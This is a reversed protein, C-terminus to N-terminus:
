LIGLLLYEFEVRKMQEKTLSKSSIPLNSVLAFNQNTGINMAKNEVVVSYRGARLYVEIQEVNDVSNKHTNTAKAEINDSDLSWPYYIKGDKDVISLDLDTNLFDSIEDGQYIAYKSPDIWSLTIKVKMDNPVILTYSKKDGEDVSDLVIKSDARKISLIANVCKLGDPLGYGYEYDPGERGLDTASNVLLAKALDERLKENTVRLYEEELLALLGTIHPASMSTGNMYAYDDNEDISDVINGFAVIDPKLRGRSVPGVSSFYTINEDKDVAGVTISNKASAFDRIIWYDWDERSNGASNVILMDPNKSVFADVNQSLNGYVTETDPGYSHNSLYINDRKLDNLISLIDFHYQYFSYSYLLSSTAIGIADGNEGSSAIIGGVHSAHPSITLNDENKKKWIVRNKLEFHENNVFGGDVVGVNIGRGTLKYDKYLPDINLMNRGRLDDGQLVKSEGGRVFLLDEAILGFDKQYYGIGEHSCEIAIVDDYSKDSIRIQEYHEKLFCNNKLDEGVSLERKLTISRQEKTKFSMNININPSNDLDGITLNGDELESGSLIYARKSSGIYEKNNYIDVKHDIKTPLYELLNIDKDDSLTADLNMDDNQYVEVVRSVTTSLGGRDKVSYRITYKGAKYIDVFGDVKIKDNIADFEENDYAKVFPDKFTEGLRVRIYSDGKLELKPPTNKVVFIHKKIGRKVGNEEIYYDQVYEGVRSTDVEGSYYYRYGELKGDVILTDIKYEEGLLVVEVVGRKLSLGSSDGISNDSNKILEVKKHLNANINDQVDQKEKNEAQKEKTDNKSSDVGASSNTDSGGGCAIFLFSILTLFLAKRM